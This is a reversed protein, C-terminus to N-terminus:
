NKSRRARGSWGHLASRVSKRRRSTPISIGDWDWFGRSIRTTARHPMIVSVTPVSGRAIFGPTSGVDQLKYLGAVLRRVKERNEPTKNREYRDCQAVLYMGNFFGGNEIPTWWGLANPLDAACEEPTPLVVEGKLGTYDYMINDKGIFRSWIVQNVEDAKRNLEEQANLTLIALCIGCPVFLQKFM